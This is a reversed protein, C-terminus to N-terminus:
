GSWDDKSKKCKRKRGISKLFDRKQKKMWTDHRNEQDGKFLHYSNERKRELYLQPKGWIGGGTLCAKKAGLVM